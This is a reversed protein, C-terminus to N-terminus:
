KVGDGLHEWSWERTFTEPVYYMEGVTEWVPYQEVADEDYQLRLLNGEGSGAGASDLIDVYLGGEEFFLERVNPKVYLYSSAPSISYENTIDFLVTWPGNGQQAFIGAFELTVEAPLDLLPTNMNKQGAIVYRIDGLMMDALVQEPYVTQEGWDRVLGFSVGGPPDLTEDRPEAVQGESFRRYMERLLANADMGNPVSLYHAIDEESFPPINLQILLSDAVLLWSADCWSIVVGFPVPEVGLGDTACPSSSADRIASLISEYGYGPYHGVLAEEFGRTEDTSLAISAVIGLIFLGGLIGLVKHVIRM